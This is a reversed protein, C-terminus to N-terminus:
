FLLFKLIFIHVSYYEGYGKAVCKGLEMRGYKAETMMIVEQQKCEGVFTDVNCYDEAGSIILM